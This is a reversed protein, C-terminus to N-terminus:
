EKPKIIFATPSPINFLHLELRKEKIFRDVANSESWIHYGYEDFVVIGGPVIRDWMACLADYTPTELDVDMYLLSIRMGPRSNVYEKSTNSLDGKVLEFKSTHFGANLIRKTIGEVSIDDRILPCRSFVESMAKKDTNNELTEVFNQDFFDFGIVKRISNPTTMSVLKLWLLLSSGKFVGCEVIDGPLDAITNFINIKMAMKYFISRDDSRMFSNFVDFIEQNDNNKSSTISNYISPTPQPSIASM